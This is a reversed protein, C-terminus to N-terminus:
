VIQLSYSPLICQKSVTNVLMKFIKFTKHDCTNWEDKLMHLCFSTQNSGLLRLLEVTSLDEWDLETDRPELECSQHPLSLSSFSALPPFPPLGDFVYPQVPLISWEHQVHKSFLNQLLFCQVTYKFFINLEKVNCKYRHSFQQLTTKMLYIVFTLFIWIWTEQLYVASM